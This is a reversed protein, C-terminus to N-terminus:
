YRRKSSAYSLRLSANILPFQLGDTFGYNKFSYGDFRSLGEQTAFWMYGNSSQYIAQVKSNALGDSM